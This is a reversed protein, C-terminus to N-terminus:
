QAIEQATLNTQTRHNWGANEDSYTMRNMWFVSPSNNTNGGYIAYTIQSTTSPSDYFTGHHNYSQYEWSDGNWVTQNGFVEFWVPVRNGLNSDNKAIQTTTSGITRYLKIAGYRETCAGNFMCTILIKSSSSKPTINLTLLSSFTVGSVSTRANTTAHQTQIVHGPAYLVHGSAVEIHNNADTHSQIKNVFLESMYKDGHIDYDM